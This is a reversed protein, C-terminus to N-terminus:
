ITSPNKKSAVVFLPPSPPPHLSCLFPATSTSGWPESACRACAVVEQTRTPFLFFPTSRALSTYGQPCSSARPSSDGRLMGVLVRCPIDSTGESRRRKVALGGGAIIQSRRDAIQSSKCILYMIKFYVHPTVCRKCSHVTFRLVIYKSSRAASPRLGQRVFLLVLLCAACILKYLDATRHHQRKATHRMGWCPERVTM